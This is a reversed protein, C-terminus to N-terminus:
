KQISINFRILAGSSASTFILVPVPAPNYVISPAHLRPPSALVVAGDM